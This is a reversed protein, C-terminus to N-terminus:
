VVRWLKMFVIEKEKDFIKRIEPHLNRTFVIPRFTTCNCTFDSCVFFRNKFHFFAFIASKM